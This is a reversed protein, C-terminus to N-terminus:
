AVAQLEVSVLALTVQMACGVGACAGSTRRQGSFDFGLSCLSLRRMAYEGLHSTHARPTSAYSSSVPFLGNLDTPVLSASHPHTPEPRVPMHSMHYSSSVPFLGNSDPPLLSASHANHFSPVQAHSRSVAFLGNLGTPPLSTSHPHIM